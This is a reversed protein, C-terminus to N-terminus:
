VSTVVVQDASILKLLDDESMFFYSMSSFEFKILAILLQQATQRFLCERSLRQNDTFKIFGM